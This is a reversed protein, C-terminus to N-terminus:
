WNMRMTKVKGCRRRSKRGRWQQGRASLPKVCFLSKMRRGTARAPKFQELNAVWRGEKMASCNRQCLRWCWARKGKPPCRLRLRPRTMFPWYKGAACYMWPRALAKVAFDGVVKPYGNRVYNDDIHITKGDDTIENYMVCDAGLHEGVIVYGGRIEFRRVAAAACRQTQLFAERAQNRRLVEEAEKRETIDRFYVSIGNRMPYVGMDGWRGIVKSYVEYHQHSKERLAQHFKSLSIDIIGPFIAEIKRGILDARPLGWMREAPKNVYTFRLDKDLVYFCDSISELIDEKQQNAEGLQRTKECLAEEAKMWDSIDHFLIAVRRQEPKGVRYAYVDYFRGLAEAPNQFRVPEGTLAIHGYIDFWHQEHDPILARM